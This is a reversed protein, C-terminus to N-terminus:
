MEGMEIERIVPELKNKVRQKITDANTRSIGFTRCVEDVPLEEIALAQFVLLNRPKEAVRRMAVETVRRFWETKWLVDFPESTTNDTLMEPETALERRHPHRHYELVRWKVKQGLWAGFSRQSFDPPEPRRFDRHIELFITQTVDDLDSEPIGNRVAISRIFPKYTLYLEQWSAECSEAVRAILTKRTQWRADPTNSDPPM